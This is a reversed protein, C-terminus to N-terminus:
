VTHPSIYCKIWDRESAYKVLTAIPISKPHWQIYLYHTWCSTHGLILHTIDFIYMYLLMFCDLNFHLIDQDASSFWMVLCDNATTLNCIIVHLAHNILDLNIITYLSVQLGCNYGSEAKPSVRWLCQHNLPLIRAQWAPPGPEIGPWHLNQM